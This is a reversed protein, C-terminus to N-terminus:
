HRTYWSRNNRRTIYWELFVTVFGRDRWERFTVSLQDRMNPTGAWRDPEAKLVNDRQYRDVVVVSRGVPNRRLYYIFRRPPPGYEEKFYQFFEGDFEVTMYPNWHLKPRCSYVKLYYGQEGRVIEDAVLPGLSREYRMKDIRNHLSSVIYLPGLGIVQHSGLAALTRVIGEIMFYFFLLHLPNLWFEVLVFIGSGFVSSGAVVAASRFDVDTKCQMWAIARFILLFTAVCVEVIGSVIGVSRDVKPRYRPPLFSLVSGVAYGLIEKM